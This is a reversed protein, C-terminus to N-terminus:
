RPAPAEALITHQRRALAPHGPMSSILAATDAYRRKAVVAPHEGNQHPATTSWFFHAPHTYFKNTAEYPGAQNITGQDRACALSPALAATAALLAALITKMTTGWETTKSRKCPGASGSSGFGKQVPRAM